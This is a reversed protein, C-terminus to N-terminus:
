VVPEPVLHLKWEFEAGVLVARDGPQEAYPLLLVHVPVLHHADLVAGEQDVGLAHQALFPALDAHRAVRFLDQGRGAPESWRMSFLRGAFSARRANTRSVLTSICSGAAINRKSSCSM